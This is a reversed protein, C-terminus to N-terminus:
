VVYQADQQKGPLCRSAANPTGSGAVQWACVKFGCQTDRVRSSALCAGQLWMPHGQGQQKGPVCRSAANPTGSGAAQWARVKFGCQTDRVRSGAVFTVLFHFGQPLLPDVPPATALPCNVISCSSVHPANQALTGAAKLAAPPYAFSAFAHPTPSTRAIMAHFPPRGSVLQHAKPWNTCASFM